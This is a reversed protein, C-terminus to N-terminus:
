PAIAIGPVLNGVMPDVLGKIPVGSERSANGEEVSDHAPGENVVVTEDFSYSGPRAAAQRAASRTVAQLSLARVLEVALPDLGEVSAQEGARHSATTLKNSLTPMIRSIATDPIDECDIYDPRRSPGDAPNLAGKRYHITFDYPALQILWRAQRGNLSPQAM